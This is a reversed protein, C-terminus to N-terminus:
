MKGLKCHVKFHLLISLHLISHSRKQMHYDLLQSLKVMKLKNTIKTKYAHFHQDFLINQLVYCLLYIDGSLIFVEEIMGFVFTDIEYDIIVIDNQMYKTGYQSVSNILTIHDQQTVLPRIVEQIERSVLFLPVERSGTTQLRDGFFNSEKYFLYMNYSQHRESMTKTINIHNKTRNIIEKFHGHKSEFRLTMKERPVGSKRIQSGYHILFHMKPKISLIEPFCVIYDNIFHEILDDLYHTQGITMAHGMVLEVIDLIQPVLKWCENDRPVLSGFMFPFLRIFNYMESATLVIRFDKLSKKTVPQPKNEKDCNAFPFEEIIKNYEDISFYGETTLNILINTLIDDGM